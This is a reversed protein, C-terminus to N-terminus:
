SIEAEWDRTEIITRLHDLFAAVYAGDFARHDWALALIGVSHIAIGENGADDTIVVPKRRIGDTSLIAVQPQNIIPFQMMTGYQGPNTITFTGGMIEDAALKKARARNALDVIERSLHRLRKSDAAKIVPALLGQFDLDVAIALNVDQHLVLENDGVSANIHPFERIADVVARAIFPLYTLSFGEESKWEGKHRQRVVEVKEFDVEVATLVHPSTAKSMVMHDGTLRRINNMPVRTEGDAGAAPAASPAAAPPAPAPAPAPEPAAAAAPAPASTPQPATSLGQESIAKEVDARTIRGGLGTPTVTSPDIGSQNILRRVVPSLPLDSGLGPGSPEAAPAPPPPPPAPAAPEPAPAPAAEPTPAAAAPAAAPAAGDASVVALVQGVEAIDGEPVRIETVVGSVPSPVESDVKDTSVEFLVEDEAVTEGVAKFWRTITGETVTEGLQPMTVDAM